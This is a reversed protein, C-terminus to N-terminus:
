RRLFDALAGRFRAPQDLMVMHGSGDIRILRANRAPAYARAFSRDIAANAQPDPSAYVVTLPARIRSLRPTLDTRMLEQTARGVVDPDSRSNTSGPPSFAGILAGFLRGGGPTAILDALPSANRASGGLLGAPQPLIDVVMIRGVLDPRRAAIM